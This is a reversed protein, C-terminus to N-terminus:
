SRDDCAREHLLRQFTALARHGVNDEGDVPLDAFVCFLEMLLAGSAVAGPLDQRQSASKLKLYLEVLRTASAADISKWRPVRLARGHAQFLLGTKGDRRIKLAPWNFCVYW